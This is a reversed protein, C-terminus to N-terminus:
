SYFKALVCVAMISFSVMGQGAGSDPGDTPGTTPAATPAATPASTPAATEERPFAFTAAVCLCMVFFQTKM